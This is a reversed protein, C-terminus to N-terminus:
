AAKVAIHKPSPISKLVNRLIPLKQSLGGRIVEPNLNAVAMM